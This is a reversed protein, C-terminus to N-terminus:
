DPLDTKLIQKSMDMIGDEEDLSIGEEATLKSTRTNKSEEM